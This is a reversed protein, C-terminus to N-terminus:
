RTKMAAQSTSAKAVDPPLGRRAWGLVTAEGYRGVLTRVMATSDAYARRAAAPDSTQRLEADTHVRATASGRLGALYDAMGERFWLPLDPPAVSEILIHWLEHSLTSDLVNRARLVAVPQLDIRRGITHAAVWGPEATANRFTEVDPYVRLEIKNPTPWGARESAARALHESRALLGADQGPQTTWLTVSEGTLRQWALGSGTLGVVTGPYYYALIEHYTKGSLGMQEAGDQCLGVGHGAGRGEFLFRGSSARISYLESRITNWGLARGIAFRFSSANIRISENGSLLLTVARGSPTREQIQISTIRDPARLGSQRLAPAIQSADGSWQWPPTRTLVCYQDPHSKLYPAALDPWLASVDETQGGCDRTYPTFTLKGRHWLTEGSTADVASELRSTVAEVDLRQCHTTDCFDFGEAAHRGRMKIAYTRAAIAMAKLAEPSQFVSSEGALADAVYSEPPLEVIKAGHATRMQVKLPQAALSLALAPVWVAFRIV